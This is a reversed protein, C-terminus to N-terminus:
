PPSVGYLGALKKLASDIQRLLRRKESARHERGEETAWVELHALLSCRSCLREVVLALPQKEAAMSLM